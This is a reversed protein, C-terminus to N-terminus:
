SGRLVSVGKPPTFEFVKPNIAANLKLQSLEVRTTQGLRDVVEFRKMQDQADLGVMIRLVNPDELRPEIEIWFLGARDGLDKFRYRNMLAVRPLEQDSLLLGALGGIASPEVSRVTAQALEPDFVWFERANLIQLQPHPKQTEWRMLGPRALIFVGSSSRSRGTLVITQQFSASLNQISALDNIFRDARPSLPETSSSQAMVPSVTMGGALALMALGISMLVLWRAAFLKNM